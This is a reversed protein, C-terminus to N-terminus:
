STLRSFSEADKLNKWIEDQKLRDKDLGKSVAEELLVLAEKEKQMAMMLRAQIYLNGGTRGELLYLKEVAREAPVFDGQAAAIRALHRWNQPYADDIKTGEQAYRLAEGPEGRELCLGAKIAYSQACYADKKMAEDIYAEGGKEDGGYFSLLGLRCLAEGSRPNIRLIKKLLEAGQQPKNGAFYLNSQMLLAEPNGPDLRYAQSLAQLAEETRGERQYEKALILQAGANYPDEKALAEAEKLAEERRGTVSYLRAKGTRAASYQADDELAGNYHELAKEYKKQFAYIGALATERFRGNGDQQEARQALLKRQLVDLQRSNGTRILIETKLVVARRSGLEEAKDTERLARENEGSLFFVYARALRIFRNNKDARIAQQLLLSGDKLNGKKAAVTGKIALSVPEASKKETEAFEQMKASQGQEMYLITRQTKEESNECGCFLGLIILAAAAPFRLRIM